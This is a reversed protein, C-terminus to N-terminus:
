KFLLRVLMSELEFKERAIRPVAIIDVFLHLVVQLCWKLKFYISCIFIKFIGATGRDRFYFNSSDLVSLDLCGVDQARLQSDMSGLGRYM